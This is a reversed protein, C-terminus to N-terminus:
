EGQQLAVLIARPRGRLLTRRAAPPLRGFVKSFVRL